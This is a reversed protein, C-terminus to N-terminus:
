YDGYNLWWREKVQRNSVSSTGARQGAIQPLVIFANVTSLQSGLITDIHEGVFGLADRCYMTKMSALLAVNAKTNRVVYAHTRNINYARFLNNKLRRPRTAAVDDGIVQGGLYLIDWDNPLSALATEFREDFDRAFVVDNEFIFSAEDDSKLLRDWLSLHSRLCGWAGSGSRYYKPPEERIERVVQVPPLSRPFVVDTVGISYAAYRNGDPRSDIRAAVSDGFLRGTRLGTGCSSSAADHM